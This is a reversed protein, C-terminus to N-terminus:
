LKFAVKVSGLIDKQTLYRGTCINDTELLYLQDETVPPEPFLKFVPLMMWFFWAPMQLVVRKKGIYSLAFEFLERYTIIRSGCLEIITNKISEDEVAKKITEVVDDIHVPQVKGAPALIVPTLSSFKKLDEFLKQGKGLIISPRIIVYPIGSNIVIQEAEAKTKAYRSKSNIDAGLASIHIFKKVGSKKAGEILSKTYEVHVKEFTIGESPEEQLIGLLNVVIDPSHKIILDSLEESFPIVTVNPTEHQLKSPQRAPIILHHDKELLSVLHRGVFGTGGAIFIKM